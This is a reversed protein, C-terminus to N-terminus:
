VARSASLGQIADRIRTDIVHTGERLGADLEDDSLVYSEWLESVRGENIAEYAEALRASSLGGWPVYLECKRRYKEEFQQPTRWPFHLVEIPSPGSLAGKLSPGSANHNGSAVEVLPDARHAVKVHEPWRPPEAVVIRATMRQAFDGTGPRPPFHFYPALVKGFRRPISSFAEKLNGRLPWWFEDSDSNIVWDAGFETAAMRALHTAMEGQGFWEPQHILHVKGGESFTELIEATGDTSGNDFVVVFDVGADLHFRVTADIIDAEDRVILTM